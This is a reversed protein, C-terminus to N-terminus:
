RWAHSVRLVVHLMVVHLASCVQIALVQRKALSLRQSNQILDLQCIVEVLIARVDCLSLCMERLATAAQEDYVDVSLPAARVRHIEHVVV